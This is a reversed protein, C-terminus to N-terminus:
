SHAAATSSAGPGIAWCLDLAWARLAAPDSVDPVVADARVAGARRDRELERARDAVLALEAVDDPPAPQGIMLRLEAARELLALAPLERSTQLRATTELAAALVWRDTASDLLELAAVVRGAAIAVSDGTAAPDSGTPREDLDLDLDLRALALQALATTTRTGTQLGAALAVEAYRRADEARGLSRAIASLRYAVVGETPRHGLEGFRELAREGAGIAAVPDGAKWWALNLAALAHGEQLPDGAARLVERARILLPLAEASRSEDALLSGLHLLSIAEETADDVDRLVAV